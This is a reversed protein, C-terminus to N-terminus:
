WTFPTRTSHPSDCTPATIAPAAAPNPPFACRRASAACFSPVGSVIRAEYGDAVVLEHVYMYTSYVTPDGLTIFGVSKGADLQAEVADAAQRHSARLAALNHTMPMPVCIAPKGEVDPWARKVIQYAASEGKGSDPIALVDCNKIANLAKLTLLEPDGPGTGIGVLTGRNM